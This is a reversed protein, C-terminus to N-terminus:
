GGNPHAGATLPNSCVISSREFIYDAHKPDYRDVRILHVNKEEGFRRTYSRILYYDIGYVNRLIFARLGAAVFRAVYDSSAASLDAAVTLDACMEVVVFRLAESAKAQM